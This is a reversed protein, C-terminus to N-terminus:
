KAKSMAHDMLSVLGAEENTPTEEKGNVVKYISGDDYVVFENGNVTTGYKINKKRGISSATTFFGLMIMGITLAIVIALISSTQNKAQTQTGQSYSSKLIPPAVVQNQNVKREVAVIRDEHSEVKTQLKSFEDDGRIDTLLRAILNPSAETLEAVDRITSAPEGFMAETAALRELLIALEDPRIEVRLLSDTDL